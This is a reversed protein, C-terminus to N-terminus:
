TVTPSSIELRCLPCTGFQVLIKPTCHSCLCRHGCPLTIDKQRVMCVVCLDDAPIEMNLCSVCDDSNESPTTNELSFTSPRRIPPKPLPCSRKKSLFGKTKSGLLFVSCTQGYVDIMAWLPKRVDVKAEIRQKRSNQFKLCIDGDATVWFELASGEQCYSELVPTAWYGSTETLNPMSIPPLPLSRTSPRVNTFGVRMAGQWHPVQREVLVRIRESIRVCRRTFVVGGKFTDEIREARRGGESLCIMDGLVRPHFTLPGLCSSDCKHTMKPDTKNNHDERMKSCICDKM